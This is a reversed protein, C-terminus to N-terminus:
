LAFAMPRYRTQEAQTRTSSALERCVESHASNKTNRKMMALKTTEKINENLPTDEVDVQSGPVVFPVLGEAFDKSCFSKWGIKHHYQAPGESSSLKPEETILLQFLLQVVVDHPHPLLGVFPTTLKKELIHGYQQISAIGADDILSQVFM